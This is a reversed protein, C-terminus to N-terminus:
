QSTWWHRADGDLLTTALETHFEAPSRALRLTEQVATLWEEAATYTGRGDFRPTHLRIFDRHATTFPDVVPRVAGQGAIQTLGAFFQRM